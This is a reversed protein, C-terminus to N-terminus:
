APSIQPYHMGTGVIGGGLDTVITALTQWLYNGYTYDVWFRYDDCERHEPPLIACSVGAVRTMALRSPPHDAFNVGCTQALVKRSQPGSLLFTADQREVFYINSDTSRASSRLTAINHGDVGSELFFEEHGVRVIIGGPEWKAVQYITEPVDIEQENLWATSSPGTVSCKALGSVDCLCVKDMRLREGEIGGFDVAIPYNNVRGWRPKLRELHPHAPSYATPISEMTHHM